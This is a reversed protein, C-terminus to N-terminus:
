NRMTGPSWWGIHHGGHLARPSFPKAHEQPPSHPVIAPPAPASHAAPTTQAGQLVAYRESTSVPNCGSPKHCAVLKVKTTSPHAVEAPKPRDFRVSRTSGDDGRGGDFSQRSHSGDRPSEPADFDSDYDVHSEDGDGSRHQNQCSPM